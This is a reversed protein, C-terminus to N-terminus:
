PAFVGFETHWGSSVPDKPIVDNESITDPVDFYTSSLGLTKAYTENFLSEIPTGTIKQLVLGLIAFGENSYM